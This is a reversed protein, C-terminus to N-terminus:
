GEWGGGTLVPYWDVGDPSKKSDGTVKVIDHEQLVARIPNQIGADARLNMEDMVLALTLPLPEADWVFPSLPQLQPGPPEPPETGSESPDTESPTESESASPSESPPESLPESPSEQPVAPTESSSGATSEPFSGTVDPTSEGGELVTEGSSAESADAGATMGGSSATSEEAAARLANEGFLSLFLAACLLFVTLTRGARSQRSKRTSSKM